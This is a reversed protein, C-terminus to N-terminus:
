GPYHAMCDHRVEDTQVAVDSCDTHHLQIVCEDETQVAVDSCDTRHLQLRIVDEKLKEASTVTKQNERLM